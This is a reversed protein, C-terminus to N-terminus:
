DKTKPTLFLHRSMYNMLDEHFIKIKFEVNLSKSKFHKVQM